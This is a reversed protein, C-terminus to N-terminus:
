VAEKWPKVHVIYGRENLVLVVPEDRWYDSVGYACMADTATVYQEGDTCHLVMRPNGNVSSNRRTVKTVIVHRTAANGVTPVVNEGALIPYRVVGQHITTTISYRVDPMTWVDGVLWAIPTDYSMITYSVGRTPFEARYQAPLEGFTGPYGVVGTFTGSSNAFPMRAAVLAAARQKDSQSRKLALRMDRPHTQM